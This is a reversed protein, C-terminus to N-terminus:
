LLDDEIKYIIRDVKCGSVCEVVQEVTLDEETKASKYHLGVSGDIMIRDGLKAGGPTKVVNVAKQYASMRKKRRCEVSDKEQLASTENDIVVGQSKIGDVSSNMKKRENRM